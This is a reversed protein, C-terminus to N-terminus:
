DSDATKEAAADARLKDMLGLIAPTTSSPQLSSAMSGNLAGFLFGLARAIHGKALADPLTKYTIIRGTKSNVRRVVQPRSLDAILEAIPQVLSNVLELRKQALASQNAERAPATQAGTDIIAPHWTFGERSALRSLTSKNRGSQRAAEGCSMGSAAWQAVIAIEEPVFAGPQAVITRQHGNSDNLTNNEQAPTTRPGLPWIQDPLGTLSLTRVGPPRRQRGLPPRPAGEVARLRSGPPRTLDFVSCITDPCRQTPAQTLDAQVRLRRTM